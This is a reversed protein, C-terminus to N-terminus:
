LDFGGARLVAYFIIRAAIAVRGFIFNQRSPVIHFELAIFLLMPIVAPEAAIGHIIFFMFNNASIGTYAMNAASCVLRIFDDVNTIRFIKHYFGIFCVMPRIAFSTATVSDIGCVEISAIAQFIALIAAIGIFIPRNLMHVLVALTFETTLRFCMFMGPSHHFGAGCGATFAAQRNHPAGDRAAALFLPFIGRGGAMAPLVGGRRGGTGGVAPFHFSAESAARGRNHLNQGLGAM